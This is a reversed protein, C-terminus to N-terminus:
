KKERKLTLLGLNSGETSELKAPRDAGPRNPLCLKLTDGDLEYIGQVTEGKFNGDQATTDIAKPKKTPDVKFTFSRGEDEASRVIKMKDGTFTIKMGKTGEEPFKKGNGILETIQWTGQLKEAEKKADQGFGSPLLVGFVLVCLAVGRAMM